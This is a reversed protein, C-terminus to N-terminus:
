ANRVGPAEAQTYPSSGPKEGLFTWSSFAIGNLPRLAPSGQARRKLTRRGVVAPYKSAEFGAERLFDLYEGARYVREFDGHEDEVTPKRGRQWAALVPERHLVFSGGPRLLEHAVRALRVPDAAHHFAADIIVWDAVEDGLGHAYFDAVVREIKEAPAELYAMSVPGYESIRRQSFEIAIVRDVEPRRALLSSMWCSGAGLDVVTGAPRVGARALNEEFLYPLEKKELWDVLNALPDEYDEVEERFRLEDLDALESFEGAARLPSAADAARISEASVSV